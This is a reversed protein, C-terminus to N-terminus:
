EDVRFLELDLSISQGEALSQALELRNEVLSDLYKLAYGIGSIALQRKSESSIITMCIHPKSFSFLNVGELQFEGEFLEYSVYLGEQAKDLPTFIYLLVPPFSDVRAKRIEKSIMKAVGQHAIMQAKNGSSYFYYVSDIKGRTIGNTNVVSGHSLISNAICFSIFILIKIMHSSKSFNEKCNM